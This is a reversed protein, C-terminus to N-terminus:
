NGVLFSESYQDIDYLDIGIFDNYRDDKFHFVVHEVVAYQLTHPLDTMMFRFFYGKDHHFHKEFIHNRGAWEKLRDSTKGGLEIGVLRGNRDFDLMLDSNVELEVTKVVCGPTPPTFYIYGMGAYDDYTVQAKM